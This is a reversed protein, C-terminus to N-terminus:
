AIAVWARKMRSSLPRGSQLLHKRFMPDSWRGTLTKQLAWIGDVAVNRNAYVPIYAQVEPRQTDPNVREPTCLVSPRHVGVAGSEPPVFPLRHNLAGELVEQCYKAATVMGAAYAANMFATWSLVEPVSQHNTPALHKLRIPKVAMGDYFDGGCSERFFGESFSKTRNVKLGFAELIEVVDNVSHNPVIMDDGFVHVKGRFKRIFREDLSEDLAHRSLGMFILTTFVMVEMPFTLASGMSAFKVLPIIEGSDLQASSSRCAQVAGALDPWPSLMDEVLRNLVRDSAESLDLTALERTRSAERASEQNLTQDTFHAFMSSLSDGEIGDVFERMLAQQMYQMYSPEVAIIRPTKLTKPVLTIKVPREQEPSLYDPVNDSFWKWHPLAYEGFPFYEELRDTWESQVFKQNGVKRDATAGPGHGPELNFTTVKRNVADFTSGFLIASTRKFEEIPLEDYGELVRRLDIECQKFGKLAKQEREATCNIEVKKLALTLQRVARIAHISPEPLLELSRGDFIQLLFGSLFRPLGGRKKFGIFLNSGVGGADLSREFDAAFSPLTITLFSLGEDKVRDLVTEWDRDIPTDCIASWDDAMAKWLGTLSKM